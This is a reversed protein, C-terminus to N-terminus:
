IWAGRVRRKRKTEQVDRAHHHCFQIAGYKPFV